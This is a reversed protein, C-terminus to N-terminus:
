NSLEPEPKKSTRFTCILIICGVTIFIDAINFVTPWHWSGMQLTIFDLVSGMQIRDYGNGLAGGLILMFAYKNMASESKKNVLFILFVSVFASVSLLFLQSWMGQDALLSFAVGRNHTLFLQIWPLPQVVDGPSLHQLAWWKSAQDLCFFLIALVLWLCTHVIPARDNMIGRMANQLVLTM